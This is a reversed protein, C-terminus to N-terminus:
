KTVPNCYCIGFDIFESLSVIFLLGGEEEGGEEQSRVEEMKAKWWDGEYFYYEFFFDLTCGCVATLEGESYIELTTEIYQETADKNETLDAPPQTEAPERLQTKAGFRRQQRLRPYDLSKAM